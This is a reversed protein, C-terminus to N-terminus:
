LQIPLTHIHKGTAAFIANALAPAIPPVGPEGVGGMKETSNAIYVEIKPTESMRLIPYDHFNSQKVRGKELTIEGYLAATLGYIIGSEMQACVGDPNVALGCDIACVVRHIRIQQNQVSLEVIQCVYSGMAAHVAVGRFIGKPLPIYWGAKEAALNLATLHRPYNKLLMRRYEVPDQSIRAALQDIMTELVFATHTNGVSRWPLVPVGVKTTHLEISHNATIELYPSGNVGDISSYDIGKPAIWSELPTNVFLSQGVISHNWFIPNGAEDTEVHVKHLYVPRYYGGQIDDERSWVLKIFQGSVQAIQVAEMVWDGQFSGRRGFSGGIFPTQFLVQEPPLQLFTAVEQQHLLPSQTGAWIECLNDQIKVACNLPEMPSHSLYPFTYEVEITHKAKPLAIKSEKQVVVKGKTKALQRYKEILQTSDIEENPGLDWEIKLTEKAKQATWYNSALVAIGTPIRFVGHVGQIAKAADANFSKVKGGFVPAHAVVATLLNPFQMDMGFKAQGNVKIAADLRKQPKGIYKWESSPRLQVTPIPLKSADEALQGYSVQKTGSIVYGNETKCTAPQVNWKKAAAQILMVRATAGAQRYRDFESTTSSSGGTSQEVPPRQFDEKKGPPSHTIKIHQWDCDLEEAILMSLTTCIGQGMEVKSLIIHISNDEDIRLFAHPSFVSSSTHNKIALPLLISVLLGGGALTSVKLFDRRNIQNKKKM